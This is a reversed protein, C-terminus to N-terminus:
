LRKPKNQLNNEEALDENNDTWSSFGTSSSVHFEHQVAGQGNSGQVSGVNLHRLLHALVVDEDEPHRDLVHVLQLGSSVVGHLVVVIIWLEFLHKM